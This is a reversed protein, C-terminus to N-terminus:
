QEVDSRGSTLQQFNLGVITCELARDAQYFHAPCFRQSFICLLFQVEDATALIDAARVILGALRAACGEDYRDAFCTSGKRISGKGIWGGILGISFRVPRMSFGRMRELVQTASQGFVRHSSIDGRMM